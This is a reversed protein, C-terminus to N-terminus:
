NGEGGKDGAQDGAPTPSPSAKADGEPPASQGKGDPESGPEATGGPLLTAGPAPSGNPLASKDKTIILVNELHAFDVYPILTATKDQDRSVTAITGVPIGKLSKSDFDSSVVKDGPVVGAEKPFYFISCTPEEGMPDGSGHLMGQDRTSEVVVSIASVRDIIAMVKCSTPMVEIITGVLGDENVVTM